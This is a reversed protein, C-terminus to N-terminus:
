EVNFDLENFNEVLADFVVKTANRYREETQGPISGTIATLILDRPDM